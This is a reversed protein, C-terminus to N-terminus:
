LFRADNVGDITARSVSLSLLHHKVLKLRHFLKGLMVSESTPRSVVRYVEVPWTTCM